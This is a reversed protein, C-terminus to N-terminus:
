APQNRKKYLFFLLLPTITIINGACIMMLYKTPSGINVNDPPFFSVIITTICGLLGLLATIWIGWQRGPIKFTKPRDSYTYHLKVGSLFMLIYMIMYLETSLATLFWYFANVSPVLLFILCFLSVVIAQGLLIHSAVGAKNKHIFFKPLFGFEAAHLLGKAPSILWNTMAGISEVEMTLTLV